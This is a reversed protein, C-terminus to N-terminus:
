VGETVSRGLPVVKGGVEVGKFVSMSVRLFRSTARIATVLSTLSFAVVARRRMNAVRQEKILASGLPPTPTVARTGSAILGWSYVYYIQIKVTV